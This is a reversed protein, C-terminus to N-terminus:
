SMRDWVVEGNIVTMEVELDKIEDAPLHTPDGNLVVLDALKGPTISGKKSEEFLSKPGFETFMRLAEFPTIGEDPLVAKGAETKRSIASYIGLIPNPLSVPCDSSGAVIVGNKILTAIPYLHKLQQDPVTGLYRDGNYYIFSPQTVVMMGLSALRRALSPPCVSCHEIRHRHDSRPFKKLAYEIASCGAEITKEEIAHLIAQLGSQHIHFVMENLKTQDPHLQGTTEHLIIKVGTLRLQDEGIRKPFPHNKYEHFGEVGLILSVRLQLLGREKWSQFMEWRRLNNRQSADHVSTIGLSCLKLNALKIGNELLDQNIPPILKELYDDMDYLIGTPEGTEIERDILGGSPDATEKSIGVLRLALSNLVRAHGTRHILKVPHEPAVIDLDWRNPHRKEMLHFENYGGGRIWTGPPLKQVLQLVESQIDSISRIKKRPELNLTVLNEAFARLHFHADVFGPLVTKGKCDIVRTKKKRFENLKENKATALIRGDQIAVMQATPLVADMTIVNANFLILDSM